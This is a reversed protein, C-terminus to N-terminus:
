EEQEELGQFKIDTLMILESDSAIMLDAFNESSQKIGIEGDDSLNQIVKKLFGINM